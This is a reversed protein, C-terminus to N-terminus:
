LLHSRKQRSTHVRILRDIEKVEEPSGRQKLALIQRKALRGVLADSRYRYTPRRSM